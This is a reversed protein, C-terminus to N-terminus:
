WGAAHNLNRGDDDAAANIAALADADHVVADAVADAIAERFVEATKQPPFVVAATQAILLVSLVAIVCNKM